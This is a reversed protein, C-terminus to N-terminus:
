TKTEYQRGQAEILAAMNPQYVNKLYDQTTSALVNLPYQKIQADLMKKQNSFNVADEQYQTRLANQATRAHNAYLNYQALQQQKQRNDANRVNGEERFRTAMLAQKNAAAQQSPMESGRAATNTANRIDDLTAQINSEYAFQPIDTEIPRQPGQMQNLANRQIGASAAAAMAPVAQLL